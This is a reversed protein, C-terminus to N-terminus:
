TTIPKQELRWADVIRVAGGGHSRGISGDPRAYTGVVYYDADVTPPAGFPPHDKTVIINEFGQKKAEELVRGPSALTRVLFGDLKVAALYRQGTRLPINEDTLHEPLGAETPPPPSPPLPGSPLPGPGPMPEIRVLGPELGVLLRGVIGTIALGAVITILGNKVDAQM